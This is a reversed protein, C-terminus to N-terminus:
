AKIELWRVKKKEWPGVWVVTKQKIRDRIKKARKVSQVRVSKCSRIFRKLDIFPKGSQIKFWGRIVM